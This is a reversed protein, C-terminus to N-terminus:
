EGKEKLQIPLWLDNKWRTIVVRNGRDESTQFYGDIFVTGSHHGRGEGRRKSVVVQGDQPKSLYVCCWQNDPIDGWGIESM